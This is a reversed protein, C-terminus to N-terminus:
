SKSKRETKRLWPHKKSTRQTKSPCEPSSHVHRHVKRNGPRSQIQVPLGTKEAILGALGQAKAEGKATLPTISVVPPASFMEPPSENDKSRKATTKTGSTKAKAPKEKGSFLTMIGQEAKPTKWELPEPDKDVKKSFLTLSPKPQETEVEPEARPTELKSRAKVEEDSSLSDLRTGAAEKVQEIDVGLESALAECSTLRAKIQKIQAVRKSEAKIDESFQAQDPAEGFGPLRGLDAGRNVAKQHSTALQERVVHRNPVKGTEAYGELLKKYIAEANEPDLDYKEVGRGIEMAIPQLQKHQSISDLVTPPMLALYGLEEVRGKKVRMEDAIRSTDWAQSRLRKVTTVQEKLGPASVAYNSLDAETQLRIRTQEDNIDGNLIKVPINEVAVQKAAELRHHGAIVIFGDPNDPDKAVTIPDFRDPNWREVIQRVREPDHDQGSPLDRPQFLEPRTSIRSPDVSEFGPLAKPSQPSTSPTNISPLLEDIQAKIEEITCEWDAVYCQPMTIEMGTAKTAKQAEPSVAFVNIDGGYRPRLLFGRHEIDTEQQHSIIKKPKNPTAEEEQPEINLTLAM